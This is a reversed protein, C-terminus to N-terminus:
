GPAHADINFDKREVYISIRFQREFSVSRNDSGCGGSRDIESFVVRLPRLVREGYTPFLSREVTACDNLVVSYAHSLCIPDIVNDSAAESARSVCNSAQCSPQDVM